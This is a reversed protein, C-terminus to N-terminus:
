SLRFSIINITLVAGLTMALQPPTSKETQDSTSLFHFRSMEHCSCVADVSYEICKFATSYSQHSYKVGQGILPLERSCFNFYM